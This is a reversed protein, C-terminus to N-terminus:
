RTYLKVMIPLTQPGVRGNNRIKVTVTDAGGILSSIDWVYRHAQGPNTVVKYGGGASTNDTQYDPAYFLMWAPSETLYYTYPKGGNFSTQGSGGGKSFYPFSRGDAYKFTANKNLLASTMPKGNVSLEMLWQGGGAIRYDIRGFMELTKGAPLVGEWVSDKPITIEEGLTYNNGKISKLDAIANKIADGDTKLSDLDAIFSDSPLDDGAKACVASIGSIKKLINETQNKVAEFKGGNSNIVGCRADTKGVCGSRISNLESLGSAAEQKGIEIQPVVSRCLIRESMKESQRAQLDTAAERLDDGTSKLINLNDALALLGEEGAPKSCLSKVKQVNADFAAIRGKLGGLEGSLKNVVGCEETNKGKCKNVNNELVTLDNKKIENEAADLQPMAQSCVSEATQAIVKIKDAELAEGYVRVDEADSQIKKMLAIMNKRDATEPNTCMSSALSMETKLDSFKSLITEFRSSFKNVQLCKDTVSNGCEVQLDKIKKMGPDMQGNAKDFQALAITCVKSVSQQMAKEGERQLAEWKVRFDNLAQQFANEDGSELAADLKAELNKRDQQLDAKMEGASQISPDIKKGEEIDAAAADLKVMGEAINKDLIDFVLKKRLDFAEKKYKDYQSENAKIYDTIKQGVNQFTEGIKEFRSKEVGILEQVKNQINAQIEAKKQEIKPQLESLVAQTIENKIADIDPKEGSSSLRGSIEKKKREVIQDALKNIDKQVSSKQEEIFPQIEKNIKDRLADAKVKLKEQMEVRMGDFKAQNQGQGWNAFDAALKEAEAVTSSSCIGDLRREGETKIADVDPITFDIGFDSKIQESPKVVYEKVADMASFFQGTKWKAMACYVQVLDKDSVYKKIEDPVTGPQEFQPKMPEPQPFSQPPGGFEKEFQKMQDDSPKQKDAMADIEKQSPGGEEVAYANNSITLGGFGILFYVAVLNIGIILFKGFIKKNM